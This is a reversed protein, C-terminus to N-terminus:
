KLAGENMCDNVATMYGDIFLFEDKTMINKGKSIVSTVYAGHIINWETLYRRKFKRCLAEDLKEMPYTKFIKKKTKM